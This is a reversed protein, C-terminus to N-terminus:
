PLVLAVIYPDVGGVGAKRDTNYLEAAASYDVKMNASWVRLERTM